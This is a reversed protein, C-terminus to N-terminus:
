RGDRPRGAARRALEYAVPQNVYAGTVTVGGSFEGRRDRHLTDPVVHTVTAYPARENEAQDQAAVQAAALEALAYLDRATLVVDQGQTRDASALTLFPKSAAEPRDDRGHDALLEVAARDTLITACLHARAALEALAIGDLHHATHGRDGKNAQENDDTTRM